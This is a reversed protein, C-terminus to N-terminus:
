RNVHRHHSRHVSNHQLGVQASRQADPGTPNAYAPYRNALNPDFGQASAFTTAGVFMAAAIALKTTTTM